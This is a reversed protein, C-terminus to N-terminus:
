KYVELSGSFATVEAVKENSYADLVEFRHYGTITKKLTSVKAMFDKKFAVTQTYWVKGVYIVNAKESFEYSTVLGATKSLEMVEDLEKQAQEKTQSPQGEVQTPESAVKTTDPETSTIQTPTDTSIQPDTGDLM